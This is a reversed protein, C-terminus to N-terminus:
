SRIVNPFQKAIEYCLDRIAGGIDFRTMRKAAFADIVTDKSHVSGPSSKFVYFNMTAYPADAFQTQFKIGAWGVVDAEEPSPAINFGKKALLPALFKNAIDTENETPEDGSTLYIKTDVFQYGPDIKADSQLDFSIALFPSFISLFTLCFFSLVFKRM